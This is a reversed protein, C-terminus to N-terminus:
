LYMIQSWTPVYMFLCLWLISMAMVEEHECFICYKNNSCPFYNWEFLVIMYYPLFHQVGSVGNNITELITWLFLFGSGVNITFVTRFRVWNYGYESPMARSALRGCWSTVVTKHRAWECRVRTWICRFVKTM